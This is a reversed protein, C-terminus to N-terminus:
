LQLTMDNYILSVYKVLFIRKKAITYQCTSMYMYTYIISANYVFKYDSLHTYM